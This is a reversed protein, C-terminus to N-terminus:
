RCGVVKPALAMLRLSVPDPVHCDPESKPEWLEIGPETRRSPASTVVGDTPLFITPPSMERYAAPTELLSVDSLRHFSSLSAHLTRDICELPKVRDHHGQRNSHADLAEELVADGVGQPSPGLHNRPERRQECQYDSQDWEDLPHSPVEVLAIQFSRHFM